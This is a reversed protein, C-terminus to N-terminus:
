ATCVCCALYAARRHLLCSCGAHLTCVWPACCGGKVQHRMHRTGAGGLLLYKRSSSLASGDLDHERGRVANTVQKGPSNCLWLVLCAFNMSVPVSAKTQFKLGGTKRCIQDNGSFFLIPRLIVNDDARLIGRPKRASRPSRCRRQMRGGLLVRGERPVGHALQTPAGVGALRHTRGM